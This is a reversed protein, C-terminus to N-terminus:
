RLLKKIMRPYFVALKANPLLPGIEPILGRANTMWKCVVAHELFGLREINVIDRMHNSKRLAKEIQARTSGYVILRDFRHKIWKNLLKATRPSLTAQIIKKDENIESNEDIKIFVPFYEKIGFLKIAELLNNIKKHTVSEVFNNFTLSAYFREGNSILGIDVIFEESTVKKVYGRQEKRERIDDWSIFTGLERELFKKGILADNGILAIEIFRKTAKIIKIFSIDLGDLFTKIFSILSLKISDTFPIYIPVLLIAKVEKKM